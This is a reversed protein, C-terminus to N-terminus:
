PSLQPPECGADWVQCTPAVIGEDSGFETQATM